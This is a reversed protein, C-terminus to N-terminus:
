KREKIRRDLSLPQEAYITLIYGEGNTVCSNGLAEVLITFDFNESFSLQLPGIAAGSLANTFMSQSIVKGQEDQSSQHQILSLKIPYAGPQHSAQLKIKTKVLGKGGTLRWFGAGQREEQWSLSGVRKYMGAGEPPISEMKTLPLDCELQLKFSGIVGAQYTSPVITYKGPLIQEVRLQARGLTYSGSDAVLDRREVDYVRGDGGSRMLKINVPKKTDLGGNPDMTTLCAKFKFNRSENRTSGPRGEEITIRWMPNNSYTALAHNGGSTKATWQGYIEKSFALPVPSSDTLSLSVQSLIQLTLATPKHTMSPDESRTKSDWDDHFSFNILCMAQRDEVSFRALLHTSNSLPTAALPPLGHNTSDYTKQALPTREQDDLFVQLSMFRKNDTVQNDLHRTLLIWVEPDPEVTSGQDFNLQFAPLPHHFFHVLQQFKFPSPDWNLYVTEFYMQLSEWSITFTGVRETPRSPVLEPLSNELQATWQTQPAPQPEVVNWANYLTVLRNGKNDEQINIVAYDHCPVLGVSELADLNNANTGVSVLCDGKSFGSHVRNWSQESRYDQSTLLITEPIWGTLAHLDVSSNSGVFDYGGMVKMYAKEVLAPWFYLGQRSQACMRSGSTSIPVKDDVLIERETGNLFLKVRYIGDVPVQPFGDSGKPYLCGVHLKSQFTKAHNILVSFAAILSCDTVVDQVIDTPDLADHNYLQLITDTKNISRWELFTEKQVPSLAPQIAAMQAKYSTGKAPTSDSPSWPPFAIGNIKQSRQLVIDQEEPSTRDRIPARLSLQPRSSKIQEARSLLKSSITKLQEKLPGDQIIRILYLYKQVSDVYLSFAQEYDGQAEQRTARSAITQVEKLKNRLEPSLSRLDM